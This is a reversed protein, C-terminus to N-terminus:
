DSINTKMPQDPITYNVSIYHLQDRYEILDILPNRELRLKCWPGRIRDLIHTNDRPIETRWVRFKQKTNNYNFSLTGNQYSTTATLKHYSNKLPILNGQTDFCENTYEIFNFIKDYTPATNVLLEVYCDVDQEFLQHRYNAFQKFLQTTTNQYYLTYTEDFYNFLYPVKEYSYFSVFCDLLENYNICYKDNMWYIDNHQLDYNAIWNDNSTTNTIPYWHNNSKVSFTNNSWTKFGKSLSLDLPSLSEGSAPFRYFSKSTEDIWYFGTKTKVVSWKNLTGVDRSFYTNNQLHLSEQFYISIPNGTSTELLSKSNFDLVSLGHQQLCYVNDNFSVLKEVDGCTGLTDYYNLAPVIGWSDTSEGNIKHVSWMIRTPFHKLLSSAYNDDVQQYTQLTNSGLTYVPNISQSVTADPFGLYPNNIDSSVLNDYDLTNGDLNIYSEIMVSGVESIDNKRNQNLHGYTKISNYRQFYTDGELFSLPYTMSEQRHTVGGTLATQVMQVHSTLDEITISYGCPQWQWQADSLGEYTYPNNQGYDEELKTNRVNALQLLWYNEVLRPNGNEDYTLLKTNDTSDIQITTRRPYVRNEDVFQDNHSKLCYQWYALQNNTHNSYNTLIPFKIDEWNGSHPYISFYPGLNSFSNHIETNSIHNYNAALHASNALYYQLVENVYIKYYFEPQYQIHNQYDWSTQTDLTIYNLNPRPGLIVDDQTVQTINSPPTQLIHVQTQFDPLLDCHSNTIAILHPASQHNFLTTDSQVQLMQSRFQKYLTDWGDVPQVNDIHPVLSKLANPLFYTLPLYGCKTFLQPLMGSFALNDRFSELTLPEGTAAKVDNNDFARLSKFGRYWKMAAILSTTNYKVADNFVGYNLILDGHNNLKLWKVHSFTLQSSGTQEQDYLQIETDILCPQIYNTVNSYLISCTSNYLSRSYSVGDCENLVYFSKSGMWPYIACAYYPDFLSHPFTTSYPFYYHSTYKNNKYFLTAITSSSVGTHFWYPVASQFDAPLIMPHLKTIGYNVSTNVPLFPDFNYYGLCYGLLENKTNYEVDWAYDWHSHPAPLVHENSGNINTNTVDNPSIVVNPNYQWDSINHTTKLTVGSLMLMRRLFVDQIGNFSIGAGGNTPDVYIDTAVLLHPKNSDRKNYLLMGDNDVLIEANESRRQQLEGYWSWTLALEGHTKEHTKCLLYPDDIGTAAYVGNYYDDISWNNSFDNDNFTNTNNYINTNLPNNGYRGNSGRLQFTTIPTFWFPGTHYSLAANKTGTKHLVNTLDNLNQNDYMVQTLHEADVCKTHLYHEHNGIPKSKAANSRLLSATIQAYGCIEVDCQDLWETAYTPVTDKLDIEPTNITFASEDIFITNHYNNTHLVQPVNTFGQLQLVKARSTPYEVSNNFPQDVKWQINASAFWAIKNDWIDTQNDELNFLPSVVYNADKKMFFCYDNLNIHSGNFEANLTNKPPLSFGHRFERYPTQWTVVKSFDPNAHYKDGEMYNRANHLDKFSRMTYTYDVSFIGDNNKSYPNHLPKPRYFYSPFAFNSRQLKDISMRNSGNYMTPCVIGQTVINRYKPPPIVCVPKIKRYGLQWLQKLKIIGTNSFFVEAKPIYYQVEQPIHNDNYIVQSGSSINCQKDTLFIVNSWIGSTHQAILGFRYWNGKRYGKYEYNSNQFTTNLPDYQYMLNQQFTEKGIYKKAFGLKFDKSEFQIKSIDPAGEKINGYFLYNDKTALTYPVINSSKAMLDSYTGTYDILDFEDYDLRDSWTTADGYYREIYRIVPQQSSSFFFMYVRLFQYQTDLNDITLRFSHESTNPSDASIAQHLGTCDYMPTVEVLNTETQQDNYYSFAFQVKGAPYHGNVNWIKNVTFNENLQLAFGLSIDGIDNADYQKLINIARPNNKGDVFYVKKIQQTEINPLCEIPHQIDFHLLTGKYLYVLKFINNHLELRAIIDKQVNDIGFLICYNELECHGIVTFPLANWVSDFINYELDNYLEIRLIQENGKEQTVCLTTNNDRADIRINKNAFAFATDFVAESTDQRMGKIIFTDTKFAM